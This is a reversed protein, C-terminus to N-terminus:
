ARRGKPDIADRLGDGLFNLALLTSGLFFAPWFLIFRHSALPNVARTGEAALLGWSTHPEQVGLGLFSLFSELLIVAPVTLTTYVIVPGIVNPLLHRFLIRADSAGITRAADVFERHKYSIVQGRVIRATTLWQVCGLAVFIPVLGRGWVVLVLIVIFMYPLGYLVDVCRMMLNDTRGGAYGSISGYLTGILVSVATAVIAILFSIRGGYFVRAFLDRGLEDTGFLHVAGTAPNARFSPAQFPAATRQQLPDFLLPVVVCALLLVGVYVGGWLALRNRRLRAMADQWLSRGRVVERAADTM